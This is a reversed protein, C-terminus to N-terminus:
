GREDRARAVGADPLRLVAVHWTFALLVLGAAAGLGALTVARVVVASPLAGSSISAMWLALGAVAGAVPLLDVVPARLWAWWASVVVVGVALDTTVVGILSHTVAYDFVWPVFVAADPSMAGVAVAGLPLGLRRLPIAVVAHSPTLPM